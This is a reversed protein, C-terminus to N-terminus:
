SATETRHDDRRREAGQQQAYAEDLGCGEVPCQVIWGDVIGAFPKVEAEHAAGPQGTM